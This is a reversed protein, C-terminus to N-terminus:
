EGWIGLAAVGALVLGIAIYYKGPLREKLFLRSWLVSFVSYSAIAPAAIIANGSLAFVYAFQGATEFVAATLRFRGGGSFLRERKVIFVYIFCLLAASAFTLEYSINASEEDLRYNLYYADAFTGAADLICYLIPLALAKLGRVYKGPVEGSFKLLEETGRRRELVGLLLVGACISVVAALQPGSMSQNLFFFCLLAVLAGSSNCVPSSLSLELYRLGIYGFLMSVIYLASVPLYIILSKLEYDFGDIFIVWLAHLGMVLGVACILKLHSYKDEPASGLKSFLDSGSWCLIAALTFAFWM